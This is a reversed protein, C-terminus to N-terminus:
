SVSVFCWTCWFKNFTWFGSIKQSPFDAPHGLLANKRAILSEQPESQRLVVEEMLVLEKCQWWIKSAM